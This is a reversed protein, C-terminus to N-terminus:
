SSPLSIFSALFSFFFIAANLSKMKLQPKCQMASLIGDRPLPAITYLVVVWDPAGGGGVLWGVSSAGKVKTGLGPFSAKL